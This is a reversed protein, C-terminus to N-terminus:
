LVLLARRYNLGQLGIYGTLRITVLQVEAWSDDHQNNTATVHYGKNKLFLSPM